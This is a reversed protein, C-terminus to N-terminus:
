CGLSPYQWWDVQDLIVRHLSEEWAVRPQTLNNTFYYDVAVQILHCCLSISLANLHYVPYESITYIHLM